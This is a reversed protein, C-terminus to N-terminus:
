KFPFLLFKEVERFQSRVKKATETTVTVNLFAKRVKIEKKDFKLDALIYFLYFKLM